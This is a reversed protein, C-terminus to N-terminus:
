NPHFCRNKNGDIEPDAKFDNICLITFEPEHNTLEEGTPRIFLNSSFMNQWVHDNIVRIPLRTAPDAGVFGDYVFPEKDEVFNKM